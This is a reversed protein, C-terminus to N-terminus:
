NLRGEEIRLIREGEQVLREDEHTVLIMSAGNAVYERFLKMIQVSTEEDLASTPEDALILEPKNVLARAIAVRQRQGGSLLKVHKQAIQELGVAKLSEEVLRKREKRSYTTYLLPIMVNKSVTDSELLAFDQFVFGIKQNRTVAKQKESMKSVKQQDLLYEGESAEDILGIINLLTSKGAGTKGIIVCLEKEKLQFSVDKLAFSDMNEKIYKKGIEELIIEMQEEEESYIRENLKIAKLKGKYIYTTKQQYVKQKVLFM